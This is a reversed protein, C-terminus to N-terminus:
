VPGDKVVEIWSLSDEDWYYKKGDNPYPTPPDWFFYNTNLIWSPFPQEPIFADLDERYSGNIEAYNKRFNRNYSTQKWNTNEGFLRKCFAVGVAENENGDKDLIDDNSIVIVRLVINNQDLEAFNAM